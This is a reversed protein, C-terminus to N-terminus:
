RRLVGFRRGTRCDRGPLAAADVERQRQHRHRRPDRRSDLGVSAGRLTESRGYAKVLDRAALLPVPNEGTTNM